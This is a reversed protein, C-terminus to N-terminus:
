REDDVVNEVIAGFLEHHRFLRSSETIPLDLQLNKLRHLRALLLLQSLLDSAKAVIEPHSIATVNDEPSIHRFEGLIGRQALYQQLSAIALQHFGAREVFDPSDPQCRIIGLGVIRAL